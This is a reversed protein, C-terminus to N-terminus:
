SLSKMAWNCICTFILGSSLNSKTSIPYHFSTKMVVIPTLFCSPLWTNITEQYNISLTFSFSLLIEAVFQYVWTQIVYNNIIKSNHSSPHLVSCCTLCCLMCQIMYWCLWSGSMVLSCLSLLCTFESLLIGPFGPYACSPMISKSGRILAIICPIWLLIVIRLGRYAFHASYFDWAGGLLFFPFFSFTPIAHSSGCSTDDPNECPSFNAWFSSIQHANHITHNAWSM